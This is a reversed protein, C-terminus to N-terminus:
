KKKMAKAGQEAMRHMEKWLPFLTSGKGPKRNSDLVELAGLPDGEMYLMGALVITESVTIEGAEEKRLLIGIAEKRRGLGYLLLYIDKEKIFSPRHNLLDFALNFFGERVLLGVCELWEDKGAKGSGVLRLLDLIRTYAEKKGDPVPKLMERAKSFDRSNIYAAALDERAREDGKEVAEMFDGPRVRFVLWAARYNDIPDFRTIWHYVRRPNRPDAPKLDPVYAAILGFRPSSSRSIFEINGYREKLYRRGKEKNQGWDCNSDAFFVYANRRGGILENFYGLYDPFGLAVSVIFWSLLLALVLKSRSYKEGSSFWGGAM